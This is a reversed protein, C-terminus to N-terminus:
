LTKAREGLHLAAIGLSLNHYRVNTFGAESMLAALRKQDPFNSVSQPLYAYAGGSGSVLAGIRPLIHHFYFAFAERFGPVIPRSFELIAARGGPKLLRHMEALGGAVNALNRLGFAVTVADACQDAFPVRLADAEALTARRAQRQAIKDNGIVLMPHCFDAGITRAHQALELTLDATGCCLDLALADPRALVDRLHNVTFRRWRKDINLSLLHNLRDYSPAIEAFMAQVAPAKDSANLEPNPLNAASAESM